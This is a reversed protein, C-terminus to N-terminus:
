EQIGDVGGSYRDEFVTNSVKSANKTYRDIKDVYKLITGNEKKTFTTKLELWYFKASSIWM